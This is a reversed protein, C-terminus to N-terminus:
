DKAYFVGLFNHAFRPIFVIFDVFVHAITVVCFYSLYAVLDVPLAYNEIFIQSLINSIFGFEFGSIVDSFSTSTPNNWTQVIFVIIPLLTILTWVVCDVKKEFRTM